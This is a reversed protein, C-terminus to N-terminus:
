TMHGLHVLKHGVPGGNGSQSATFRTELQYIVPFRKQGRFEIRHASFPVMGEIDAGENRRNLLLCIYSIIAAQFMPHIGSIEIEVMLHQQTLGPLSGKILSEFARATFSRLEKKDMYELKSIPLHSKNKLIEAIEPDLDAIQTLDFQDASGECHIVKQGFRDYTVKIEPSSTKRSNM